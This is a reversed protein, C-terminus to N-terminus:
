PTPRRKARDAIISQIVSQIVPATIAKSSASGAQSSIVIERASRSSEAQVRAAEVTQVATELDAKEQQLEVITKANAQAVAVARDRDAQMSNLQLVLTAKEQQVRRLVLAQGAFATLAVVIVLGSAVLSLTSLGFLGRQNTLPPM